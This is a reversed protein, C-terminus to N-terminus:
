EKRATLSIFCCESEARYVGRLAFLMSCAVRNPWIYASADLSIGRMRLPYTRGGSKPQSCDCFVM